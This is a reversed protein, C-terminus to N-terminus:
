VWESCEEEDILEKEVPEPHHLGLIILRDNQSLSNERIIDVPHESDTSLQCFYWKLLKKTEDMYWSEPYLLPGVVAEVQADTPNASTALIEEIDDYFFYASAEEGCEECVGSEGGLTDVYAQAAEQTPFEGLQTEHGCDPCSCQLTHHRGKYVGFLPTLIELDKSPDHTFAAISGASKPEVFAPKAVEAVVPAQDYQDDYIVLDDAVMGTFQLAKKATSLFM